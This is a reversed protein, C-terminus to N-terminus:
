PQSKVSRRVTLGVVHRNSVQLLELRVAVEELHGEVLFLRSRAWVLRLSRLWHRRRKVKFVEPSLHLGHHLVHRSAKNPLYPLLNSLFHAIGAPAHFSLNTIEFFAKANNLESSSILARSSILILRIDVAELFWGAKKFAVVIVM